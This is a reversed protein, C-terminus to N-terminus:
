RWRRRRHPLAAGHRRQSESSDSSRIRRRLDQGYGREDSLPSRFGHRRGARVREARVTTSRERRALAPRHPGPRRRSCKSAADTDLLSFRVLLERAKLPEGVGVADVHIHRDGAPTALSFSWLVESEHQVSSFSGAAFGFCDHVVPAADLVPTASLLVGPHRDDLTIALHGSM